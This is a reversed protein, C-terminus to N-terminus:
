KKKWFLYIKTQMLFSCVKILKALKEIGAERMKEAYIRKEVFASRSSFCKMFRSHSSEIFAQRIKAVDGDNLRSLNDLL